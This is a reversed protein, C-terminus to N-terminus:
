DGGICAKGEEIIDDIRAPGIGNIRSLDDISDFPRLDILEEARAPGIHKIQELEKMSAKNIDICSTSQKKDKNPKKDEKKPPSEKKGADVTGTSGTTIDYTKGDTEVLITGHVDTGYLDVGANEIVDITEAHPHGYSNDKGASYIAVEPQIAEIFQADTSTNSGHHGLQIIQAHMDDTRAIMEREENKYADGTFILSVDGYTFRASISDENLEGTLESPHLIEIGLSGIDFTEGARPEYYDAESELVAEAAQQFTGSSATNGSFWVEDVPYAEMIQALQGIHDAHPHSIIILDISSIDENQLYNLVDKKNWDGADFLITYSEDNHVYQFLTADAQGADIYHVLLDDTVNASNKSASTEETQKEENEEESEKNDMTEKSADEKLNSNETPVEKRVDNHENTTNSCGVSVFLFIALFTFLLRKM